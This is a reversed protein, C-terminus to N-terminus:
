AIVRVYQQGIRPALGGVFYESCLLDNLYVPVDPQRFPYDAGTICRRMFRLQDNFIVQNDFEDSKEVTTLRNISLVISLRDELSAIARVFQDLARQADGGEAKVQGEFLWPKFKNQATFPALYTATLFYETEYHEGEALFQQRREEDIVRTTIDQFHGAPCYGPSPFRIADVQLMWGNGLGSILENIRNNMVAMHHHTESAMDPGRIKWTASLAGDRSLVVGPAVVAIPLLLDGMSKAKLGQKRVRMM